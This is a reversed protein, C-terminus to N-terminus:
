VAAISVFGASFPPLGMRDWGAAMYGLAGPISVMVGVGASTAVSEHIARGHFTMIMDSLIGGGIGILSASLGILGPLQESQAKASKPVKAAKGRKASNGTQLKARKQVKPGKKRKAM